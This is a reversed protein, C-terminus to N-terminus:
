PLDIEIDMRIVASKHFSMMEIGRKAEFFADIPNRPPRERRELLYSYSTSIAVTQDQKRPWDYRSRVQLACSPTPRVFPPSYHTSTPVSALSTQHCKASSHPAQPFSAARKGQTLVEEKWNGGCWWEQRTGGFTRTNFCAGEFLRM